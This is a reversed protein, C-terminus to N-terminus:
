TYCGIYVCVMAYGSCCAAAVVVYIGFSVLLVNCKILQYFFGDSLFLLCFLNIKLACFIFFFTFVALLNKVILLNKKGDVKSIIM